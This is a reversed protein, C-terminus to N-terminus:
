VVSKRDSRQIVAYNQTDAYVLYDTQRGATITGVTRAILTGIILLLLVDSVRPGLASSVRGFIGRSRIDAESDEDAIFRDRISGKDRFM